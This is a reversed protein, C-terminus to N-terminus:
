KCIRMLELEAREARIREALELVLNGAQRPTASRRELWPEAMQWARLEAGTYIDMSEDPLACPDAM